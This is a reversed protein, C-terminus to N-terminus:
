LDTQFKLLWHGHKGARREDHTIQIQQRLQRLVIGRPHKERHRNHIWLETLQQLRTSWRGPMTESRHKPQRISTHRDPQRDCRHDWPQGIRINGLQQLLAPGGTHAAETDLLPVCLATPNALTFTGVNAPTGVTMGAPCEASRWVVKDKFKQCNGRAAAAQYSGAVSFDTWKNFELLAKTM